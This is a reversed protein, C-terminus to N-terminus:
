DVFYQHAKAEEYGNYEIQREWDDLHQIDSGETQAKAEDRCIGSMYM